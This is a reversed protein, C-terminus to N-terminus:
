SCDGWSIKSTKIGIPIILPTPYPVVVQAAEKLCALAYDKQITPFQGVLSDHVQLLVGIFRFREWLTLWIRNIYLAVTSQPIWAIAQRFLADDIRDFYYRRYGFANEVYHKAAVFNKVRTHWKPISPYKGFYWKQTAESEKVTLGLRQALGQATGLYHSGHCFSKFIKYKPHPSGDSRTKSISPERYFERAVEVYPDRGEALMARLEREDAEEVVIRLDAKSLDTDFMTYGEDPVFIKRVNPLVLESDDDEGGMPVNQLNTGSGFANEASSLRYSETGCINYATRMRNDIDLEAQVFTSRFVGLSRYEAINRLLPRLIPERQGLLTLAKDDLTPNGGGKGRKVIVQQHLDQYFLKQMQPNSRPNLSHGLVFQFYEERKKMELSLEIDFAARRDLDIKVGIKMAELVPWFMSQQFADVAVLGMQALNNQEVEGCERTRVCDLCNYQWSLENSM